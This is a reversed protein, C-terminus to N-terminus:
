KIFYNHIESEPIEGENDLIEFAISNLVHTTGDTDTYGFILEAEPDFGDPALNPEWRIIKRLTAENADVSRGWESDRLWKFDSYCESIDAKTVMKQAQQPQSYPRANIDDLRAEVISLRSQLDSLIDNTGATKSLWADIAQDILDGKKINQTTSIQEIRQKTAENVRISLTTKM